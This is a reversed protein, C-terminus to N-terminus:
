AKTTSSAAATASEIPFPSIGETSAPPEAASPAPPTEGLTLSLREYWPKDSTGPTPLQPLAPAAEPTERFIIQSPDVALPQAETLGTPAALPKPELAASEPEPPGTRPTSSVVSPVMPGAPPQSPLRPTPPAPPEPPAPKEPHDARLLKALGVLLWAAVAALTGLWIAEWLPGWSPEFLGRAALSGLGVLCFYTAKSEVSRRTLLIGVLFAGLMALYRVAMDLKASRYTITVPKPEDLRHLPFSQGDQPLQLNFGGKSNDPLAPPQSWGSPKTPAIDPGLTPILWRLRSHPDAWGSVSVSPRMAGKFNLYVYERPLYLTLQSQMIGANLTPPLIVFQGNMGADKGATEAPAPVEFLFRIPFESGVQGGPLRILVDNKDARRMPQQPEGNVFVDSLMKGNPPLEVTFFQLSNNKVWYIVETSSGGDVSVVTNLVAYTVIAQPVELFLNKSISLKLSSPHRLHKYALIVGTRSLEGRLEKPDINELNEINANLVELNSDKIVATQDIQQFVDQLLLEPVALDTAQGAGLDKIPVELSLEIPVAGMRKDRLTVKWLDRDAAPAPAPNQPPKAPDAPPAAPPPPQYNKDVEKLDRTEVRLDKAIAKPVSIVFSDVGAYQVDYNIWWRYRAAQEKLEVLALVDGTVQSQKLTLLITAPAAEGRYRFAMSPAGIDAESGAPAFPDGEVRGQQPAKELKQAPQQGSGPLQAEINPVHEQRLGGLDKTNPDLSEHLAVGLVAEHRAVSQPSFVPVVVPQEPTERIRRGTVRFSVVGLSRAKFRVNLFRKKEPTDEVKFSDVVPGTAEIDDFDAPVEIKVDFIGSRKVNLDCATVFRAMDLGVNLLTSTTVEVLPEARTLGLTVSIPLKLYRYSGLLNTAAPPTPAPNQSPPAVAVEQQSLGSLDKVVADLEAGSEVAIAGRQRVVNRAEIQPVKVEAPLADIGTEVELKLHYQDRVPAHLTVTLEQPGDGQAPSLNWEKISEGAVSLVEHPKPVALVFKDVASRLIRFDLDITNHLSGAAATVKQQAEAFILPTLKSEGGAKQWTIELSETEGTFFSLESKGGQAQVTFAAGPQLRFEWGEEPITISCRSVPAKPLALRLLYRGSNREVRAMAELKVAYKGKKPLLLEYGKEGLRLTAEGTDAKALSLGAGALPLVSWGEEKFSEVQVTATLSAVEGEVAGTVELSSLVAEAPSKVAEKKQQINLQNWMELFERYPLFVGQGENTLTKALDDFPVYVTREKIAAHSETPQGGGAPPPTAPPPTQALLPAASLMAAAYFPVFRMLIRDATAGPSCPQGGLGDGLKRGAGFCCQGGSHGWNGAGVLM